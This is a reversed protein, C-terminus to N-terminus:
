RDDKPWQQTMAPQGVAIIKGLWSNTAFALSGVM